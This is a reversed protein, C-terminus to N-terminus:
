TSFIFVPQQVKHANQTPTKNATFIQNRRQQKKKKLPLPSTRNHTATEETPKRHNQDPLQYQSWDSRLTEHSNEMLSSRRHGTRGRSKERHCICICEHSHYRWTFAMVKEDRWSNWISCPKNFFCLLLLFFITKWVVVQTRTLEPSGRINQLTKLCGKEM